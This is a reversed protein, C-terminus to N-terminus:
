SYTWPQKDPSRHGHGYLRSSHDSIPLRGPLDPSNAAICIHECALQGTNSFEVCFVCDTHCHRASLPGFLVSPLMALLADAVVANIHVVAHRPLSVNCNNCECGAFNWLGEQSHRWCQSCESSSSGGMLFSEPTLISYLAAIRFTRDRYTFVAWKGAVNMPLASHPWSLVLCGAAQTLFALSSPRPIQCPAWPGAVAIGYMIFLRNEQEVNHGFDCKCVCHAFCAFIRTSVINADNNPVKRCRCKRKKMAFIFCNVQHVSLSRVHGTNLRM